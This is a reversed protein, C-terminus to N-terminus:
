PNSKANPASSLTTETTTDKGIAAAVATPQVSLGFVRWRGQVAQYLIEFDIRVPQGPFYGKLHLMGTQANIAPAETLQPGIIAVASLEVGRQTLDAFIVSLRAASHAERFGPAAADRLVTFNGTQLADNLTLLTTRLLLVIQEAHPM